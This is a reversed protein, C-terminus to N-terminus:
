GYEKVGNSLTLEIIRLRIKDENSLERTPPFINYSELAFVGVKSFEIVMKSELKQRKELDTTNAIILIRKFNAQQYDPDKFSTMKTSACGFLLFSIIFFFYIKIIQM